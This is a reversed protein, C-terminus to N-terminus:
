YAHFISDLSTHKCRSVSSGAEGQDCWVWLWANKFNSTYEVIVTDVANMFLVPTSGTVGTSMAPFLFTATSKQAMALNSLGAFVLTGASFATVGVM